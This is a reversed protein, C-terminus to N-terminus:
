DPQYTGQLTVIRASSRIISQNNFTFTYVGGEYRVAFNGTVPHDLKQVIKNDPATLTFGVLTDDAAGNVNASIGRM